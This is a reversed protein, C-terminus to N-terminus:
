RPVTVHQLYDPWNSAHNSDSHVEMNGWGAVTLYTIGPTLIAPQFQPNGAFIEIVPNDLVVSLKLLSVDYSM